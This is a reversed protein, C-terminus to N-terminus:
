EVIKVKFDSELVEYEKLIHKLIDICKFVERKCQKITFDNNKFYYLINLISMFKQNKNLDGYNAKAGIVQIILSDIYENLGINEEEKLPLIKFVSDILYNLYEKIM